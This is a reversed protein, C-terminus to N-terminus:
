SPKVKWDKYPDNIQVVPTAPVPSKNLAKTLVSSIGGGKPGFLTALLIILAFSDALEESADSVALLTVM